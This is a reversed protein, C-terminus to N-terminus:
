STAPGGAAGGAGSASPRSVGAAEAAPPRKGRRANVNPAGQPYIPWSEAEKAGEEDSVSLDGVRDPFLLIRGMARRRQRTTSARISAATMAASGTKAWAGLRPPTRRIASRSAGPRSGCREILKRVCEYTLRAYLWSTRNGLPGSCFDGVSKEIM